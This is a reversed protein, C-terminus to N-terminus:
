FGLEMFMWEIENAKEIANIVEKQKRQFFELDTEERWLELLFEEQENTLEKM